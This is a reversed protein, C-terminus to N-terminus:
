TPRSVATYRLWLGGATFRHEDLLELDLRLGVPFFPTGGGAVTPGVIPQYEDVLGARIAQAALGPGDVTFDRDTSAKLELVAEPDFSREIRTRESSVDVLTTSYVVKDIAQWERAFEVVFSPAAPDLHATEWFVMTEYMRRGYLFTGVSSMQEGIFQHSEEDIAIFDSSGGADIAYGDLSTIMSYILKGM